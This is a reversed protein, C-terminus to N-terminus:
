PNRDMTILLWGTAPIRIASAKHTTQGVKVNLHWIEAHPDKKACALANEGAANFLGNASVVAKPNGLSKLGEPTRYYLVANGARTNVRDIEETAETRSAAIALGDKDM